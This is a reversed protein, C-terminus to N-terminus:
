AIALFIYSVGSSNALNGAANSLEFGSSAANVWNTNTVQAANSNLLFYPDDTPVIGRASDWVYWNGTASTSKVLVFRAGTTFGCDIVQTAGTGTFTGVKSVGPCTSFLWAIYSGASNNVLTSTGLTFVSSTPTTNNWITISSSTANTGDLVLFSTNLGYYVTWASLVDRRKVFILEPVASLNHPQNVVAGTGLYYAVDMFKPARRFLYNIFTNSSANTITSTTGVEIGNMVDWSNAQLITADANPEIGNTSTVLYGNGNLRTAFLDNVAAGTNKILVADTVPLGTVTANAGTGTRNNLGFVASGDTPTKMPGRRIAIYIYVSASANFEGSTTNLRFGNALPRIFNGATEADILNAQLTAENYSFYIGRMSDVIQWNGVGTRNKIMLWQPEYGLDVVPGANNGNGTYSGCSIVNDTDLQGFGGANHAFVYAVWSSGAGNYFSSVTFSTDNVASVGSGTAVFAATTDLRGYSDFANQGSRHVVWWGDVTGVRKLIICGPTSGLNHQIVGTGGTGTWTVVDFFKPQKQFSWSAYTAATTNVGAANGLSFGNSNFATLSNALSAQADTTNSNLENLAGRNTDFLFHNTATGTRNKIWALGGKSALNIGNNITQTAGSGTYLFTSFVDEIYNAPVPTGGGFADYSAAGSTEQLPM